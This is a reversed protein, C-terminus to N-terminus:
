KNVISLSKLFHVLYTNGYDGSLEQSITDKSWQEATLLFGCESSITNSLASKLCNLRTIVGNIQNDSLVDGLIKKIDDNGTALIKEALSKSIHPLNIKNDRTVLPSVVNWCLGKQLNTNSGFGGENDFATLGVLERGNAIKFFCNGPNHDQENTITDLVQLSTLEKQFKPNVKFNKNVKLDSIGPARDTLIGLKEGHSTILKVFETKVVVNDIGLWKALKYTALQKMALNTQFNGEQINSSIHRHVLDRSAYLFFNKLNIKLKRAVSNPVGLCNSSAEKRIYKSLNSNKDWLFGANIFKKANEGTLTQRLIKKDTSFSGSIYEDFYENIIRKVEADEDLKMKCEKFYKPGDKFKIIRINNNLGNTWSVHLGRVDINNSPELAYGMSINKSIFLLSVLLLVCCKFKM